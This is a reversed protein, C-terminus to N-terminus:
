LVFTLSPSALCLATHRRVFTPSHVPLCPGAGPLNSLCAPSLCTAVRFNSRVAETTFSTLRQDLGVTRYEYPDRLGYKYYRPFYGIGTTGHCRAGHQDFRRIIFIAMSFHAPKYPPDLPQM